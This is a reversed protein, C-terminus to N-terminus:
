FKWIVVNICKKSYSYIFGIRSPCTKLIVDSGVNEGFEVVGLKV